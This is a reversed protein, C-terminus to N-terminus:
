SKAQTFPQLLNAPYPEIGLNRLETFHKEAIEQESLAM